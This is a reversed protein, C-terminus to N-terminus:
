PRYGFLGAVVGVLTSCAVAGVIALVLGVITGGMEQGFVWGYRVGIVVAFLYATRHLISPKGDNHEESSM